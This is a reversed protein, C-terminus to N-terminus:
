ILGFIRFYMSTCFFIFGLVHVDSICFLSNSSPTTWGSSEGSINLDISSACFVQHKTPLFQRNLRKFCFVLHMLHSFRIDLLWMSIDLWCAENRQHILHRWFLLSIVFQQPQNSWYGEINILQTLDNLKTPSAECSSHAFPLAERIPCLVTTPLFQHIHHNIIKSKVRGTVNLWQQLIHEFSTSNLQDVLWWVWWM